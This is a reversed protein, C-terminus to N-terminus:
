DAYEVQQFLSNLIEMDPMALEASIRNIPNEERKFYPPEIVKSYNQESGKGRFDDVQKETVLGKKLHTVGQQYGKRYQKECIRCIEKTLANREAQTMETIKNKVKEKATM